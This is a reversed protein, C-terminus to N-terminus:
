VTSVAQHSFKLSDFPLRMVHCSQGLVLCCLGLLARSSTVSRCPTKKQLVHPGVYGMEVVAKHVAKKQSISQGAHYECFGWVWCVYFPHILEVCSTTRRCKTAHMRHKQVAQLAKEQQMPHSMPSASDAKSVAKGRSIGVPCLAQDSTPICRTRRRAITHFAVAPRGQKIFCSRQAAMFGQTQCYSLLHYTCNNPNILHSIHIRTPSQSPPTKIAQKRAWHFLSRRHDNDLERRLLSPM